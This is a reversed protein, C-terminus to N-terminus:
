AAGEMTALKKKCIEMDELMSQESFVYREIKYEETGDSFPTVYVMCIMMMGYKDVYVFKWLEFLIDSGDPKETSSHWVDALVYGREVNDKHAREIRKPLNKLDVPIMFNESM